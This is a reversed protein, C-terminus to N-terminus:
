GEEPSTIKLNYPFTTIKICLRGEEGSSHCLFILFEQSMKLNIKLKKVASATVEM